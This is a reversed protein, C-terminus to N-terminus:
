AAKRPGSRRILFIALAVLAAIAAAAVLGGLVMMTTGMPEHM